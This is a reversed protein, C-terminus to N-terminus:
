RIGHGSRQRYRSKKINVQRDSGPHGSYGQPCFIFAEPLSTQGQTNSVSEWFVGERYIGPSVKGCLEIM